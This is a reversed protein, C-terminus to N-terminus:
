IEFKYTELLVAKMQILLLGLQKILRKVLNLTSERM